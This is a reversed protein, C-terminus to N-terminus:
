MALFRQFELERAIRETNYATIATNAVAANLTQNSKAAIEASKMTERIMRDCKNNIKTIESYIGHQNDIIKDLKRSIEELTCQFQDSRLECRVLYYLGDAGELKTSIGLRIFEYMYGIPILNRYDSDIGSSAYFSNLKRSAENKRNILINRQRILIEREKRERQVRQDDKLIENNHVKLDRLYQKRFKDNDGSYSILGYILGLVAGILVAVLGFTFGHLIIGFLKAFFGVEHKFNYIVGVIIGIIGFILAGTGASLGIDSKDAKEETPAIIKRKKGLDTIRSDLENIARTMLYNNLEMDYLKSITSFLSKGM